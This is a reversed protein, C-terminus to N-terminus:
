QSKNWVDVYQKAVNIYGHVNEAFKRSEYGIDRVSTRRELINEVEKIISEASPQLNIVPSKRVGLSELSEPEGGGMVIKGM